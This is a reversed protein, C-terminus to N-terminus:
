RREAQGNGTPLQPTSKRPDNREVYAVIQAAENRNPHKGHAVAKVVEFTLAAVECLLRDYDRSARAQQLPDTM